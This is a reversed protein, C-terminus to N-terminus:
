EILETRERANQNMEKDTFTNSTTKHGVPNQSDARHLEGTRERETGLGAMHHYRSRVAIMRLEEIQEADLETPLCGFHLAVQAVHLRYNYLTSSSKGSITM